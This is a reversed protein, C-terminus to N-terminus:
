AQGGNRVQRYTAIAGALGAADDPALSVERGYEDVRVTVHRYLFGVLAGAILVVVGLGIMRRFVSAKAVAAVAVAAVLAGGAIFLLGAPPSIVYEEM